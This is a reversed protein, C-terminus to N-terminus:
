TKKSANRVTSKLALVLTAVFLPPGQADPDPRLPAFREVTLGAPVALETLSEISFGRHRHGFTRLVDSTHPQMDVVVLRGGRGSGTAGPRKLIRAAERFVGLPNSLLHLVLILLAADVSDDALPLAELIGEHIAVNDFAALRERAAAVMSPERDVGIAKACFPALTELAQGPGCGLDVITADSQILAAMTPAIFMRGFLQDRLSDWGSAVRSFFMAPDSDREAVVLALRERDAEREGARAPDDRVLRILTAASESLHTPDLRTLTTTGLTKRQLWGALQLTKLHRSITPQPLGLIRTLEGVSLEEDALVDILRVRVPEALLQLAHSLPPPSALEDM